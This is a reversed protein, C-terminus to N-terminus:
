ANRAASLLRSGDRTHLLRHIHSPWWRTGGGPTARGAANLQDCIDILRAGSARLGIVLALVDDPCSRPRGPLRRTQM